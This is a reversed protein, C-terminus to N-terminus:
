IKLVEIKLNYKKAQELMDASGKSKNKWVLILSDAIQAMVENRNFGALKNYEQGRKNVGIVVNPVDLDNWDAPYYRRPINNLIAWQEGYTDVGPAKGCIVVTAHELLKSEKIAKDFEQKTISRSGAIIIKM